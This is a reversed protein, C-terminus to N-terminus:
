LLHSHSTELPCRSFSFCPSFVLRSSSWTGGVVDDAELLVLKADPHVDLYYRAAQIGYLGIIHTGNLLQNESCRWIRSEGTGIIVVDYAPSDDEVLGMVLDTRRHHGTYECILHFYGPDLHLPM